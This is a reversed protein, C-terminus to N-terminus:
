ENTQTTKRHSIPCMLLVDEAIVEMINFKQNDSEYSRNSLRGEVYVLDGVKLLKTVNEALPGWCVVKVWTTESKEEGSQNKWQKTMALNFDTVSIDSPTKRLEPAKGINGILTVKNVM